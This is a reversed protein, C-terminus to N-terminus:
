RGSWIKWFAKGTQWLNNFTDLDRPTDVCGWRGRHKYAMLEGDKALQELPGVEFDCADAESLYEFVERNFVFFGGNILGESVRPKETFSQVINDKIELEGFRSPQVVGTVTGIRGHSNHFSLLKGIDIDAVGDGYTLMFLDGVIYKEIKKIRAGKLTAEGTDVLTIQWGNENHTTDRKISNHGGLEVAFDNNLMEHNYFYRKLMEGKHGLCLIFDMFGYASYIKMIHWILPKGGIDVMPKPRYETEERLRTGMGGCLIVVKIKKTNMNAGGDGAGFGESVNDV